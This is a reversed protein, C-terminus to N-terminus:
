ARRYLIPMSATNNREFSELVDDRFSRRWLVPLVERLGNWRCHNILNYESDDTLIPLLVVANDLGTHRQLWGAAHEWAELNQVTSDAFFYDFLFVGGRSGDVTGVKRVNRATVVHVYRSRNLVCTELSAYAATTRLEHAAAPTDTEILVALDFRAVHVEGARRRLFRSARAPPRLLARFVVASRVAGERAVRACLRKCDAILGRKARSIPLLPSRQDVEASILVYGFRDTPVLRVCPVPGTAPRPRPLVATNVRAGDPRATQSPM